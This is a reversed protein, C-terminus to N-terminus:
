WLYCPRTYTRTDMDTNTNTSCLKGDHKLICFGTTNLLSKGSMQKSLWSRNCNQKLLEALIRTSWGDLRQQCIGCYKNQGPTFFFNIVASSFLFSVNSVYRQKLDFMKATKYTLTETIMSIGMAKILYGEGRGLWTKVLTIPNDQWWLM